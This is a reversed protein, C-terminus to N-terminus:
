EGRTNLWYQRMSFSEDYTLEKGLFKPAIFNKACQVTEFEVEAYYFENKTGKDVCNVELNHGSQLKYIKIHKEVLPKAIFECLENFTQESIPTEIEKRVLTGKSKFCLIYTPKQGKAVTSRIRVCPQTAVYGQRMQADFICQLEAENPFKDILWKREIEM